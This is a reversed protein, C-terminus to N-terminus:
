NYLDSDQMHYKVYKSLFSILYLNTNKLGELLDMKGTQNTKRTSSICKYIETYLVTMAYHLISTYTTIIFYLPMKTYQSPITHIQHELSTLQAITKKIGRCVYTGRTSICTYKFYM